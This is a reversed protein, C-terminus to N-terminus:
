LYQIWSGALVSVINGHTGRIGIQVCVSGATGAKISGEIRATLGVNVTIPAAPGMQQFATYHGELWTAVGVTGANAVTQNQMMYCQTGGTGVAPGNLGFCVAATTATSKWRIYSVIQYWQNQVVDFSLGTINTWAAM